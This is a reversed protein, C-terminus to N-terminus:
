DASSPQPLTSQAELTYVTPNYEVETVECPYKKGDVTVILRPEKERDTQICYFGGSNGTRQLRCATLAIVLLFIMVALVRYWKNRM